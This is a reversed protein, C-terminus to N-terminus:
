RRDARATLIRPAGFERAVGARLGSTRVLCAERAIPWRREGKSLV